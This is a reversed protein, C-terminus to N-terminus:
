TPAITGDADLIAENTRLREPDELCTGDALINYALALVRDSEHYPLHRKLVHVNQDIVEPLGIHQVMLHIAGIGGCTVASDRDSLEYLINRAKLMPRPQNKWRQRALRKEIRRKRRALEQHTTHKM